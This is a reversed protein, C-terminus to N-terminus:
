FPCLKSCLRAVRTISDNANNVFIAVYKTGGSSITNYQAKMTISMCAINKQAVIEGNNNVSFFGGINIDETLPVLTYTSAASPQTNASAHGGGYDM